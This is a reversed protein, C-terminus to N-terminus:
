SAVCCVYGAFCKAAGVAHGQWFQREATLGPHARLSVLGVTLGAITEVAGLVPSRHLFYITAFPAYLMWWYEGVVFFLVV